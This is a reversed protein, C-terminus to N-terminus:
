ILELADVTDSRKDMHIMLEAHAVLPGHFIPRLRKETVFEQCVAEISDSRAFRLSGLAEGSLLVELHFEAVAAVKQPIRSESICSSEHFSPRQFNLVERTQPASATSVEGAMASGKALMRQFWADMREADQMRAAVAESPAFEM